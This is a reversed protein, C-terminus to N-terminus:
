KSRKPRYSDRFRKLHSKMEAEVEDFFISEDPNKRNTLITFMRELEIQVSLMLDDKAEVSLQKM